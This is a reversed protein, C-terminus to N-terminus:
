APVIPTRGSPVKALVSEDIKLHARVLEHPTLALWHALSVDEFHDSRFAELLAADDQRHERRLPAYTAACLRRRGGSLRLHRRQEGLRVGDNAGPGVSLIAVRRWQCALAARANRGARDRGARGRDDQVGPLQPLRRSPRHREQHAGAGPRAATASGSPCPAPASSGTPPSRVRCRRSFSISSASPSIRLPARRWASTRPSSTKPRTRSGTPSCFRATRTSTATTSSSCSSAATARSARSRTRSAPRSTGCTAESVDDAFTRRHQDVATIRARGKIMYAWEAEKHFHLERVAGAKLRMNVGALETAIHFERMTTQRAWGGEELRMHSDAFSWKLNPMTGADTRPPAVHDPEEAERTPNRPGMISAGVGNRIPQPQSPSSQKQVQEESM